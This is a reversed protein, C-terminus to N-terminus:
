TPPTTGAGLGRVWEAMIKSADHRLGSAGAASLAALCRAETPAVGFRKRFARSFHAESRFGHAFATEGIGARRRVIADFSRDLRRALVYSMVGDDAAFMSYITSRSVGLALAIQDPTLDPEALRQDIYAIAMQQLTPTAAKQQDSSLGRGGGLAGDALAFAADVAAAAESQTLRGASRFLARMYEGLLRTAPREGALVVGHLNRRKFAEPLRARPVILTIRSFHTDSSRAPRGFDVFGVDGPGLEVSHDDYDGRLRGTTQYQIMVHDIGSRRIRSRDRALRQAVSKNDFTLSDGLHFGTVDGRFNAPRDAPLAADFLQDLSARWVEFADFRPTSALHLGVGASASPVPAEVKSQEHRPPM